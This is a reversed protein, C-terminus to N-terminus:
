LEVQYVNQVYDVQKLQEITEKGVEKDVGLFAIARGGVENRGVQMTAININANGLITGMKGIIGPQDIHEMVILHGEPIFDITYGNFNVIRAGYGNLLTGSLYKEEHNTKVKVTMLNTFGHTKSTRSEVVDIGRGKALIPANVDNVVGVSGLHQSLIGKLVTRTLIDIEKEAIDGSFSIEVKEIAGFTVNEVIIGLKEALQIYPRVHNLTELSLSPMNVANRFPKGTLKNYVEEAVDIAVNLQAEETSAGLHPTIVVHPHKILPSENPPEQEFVDLAAAAVIGENLARLLAEERIIGGRACNIIRVGKKMMAFEKDDILYKTEKTLPTHVTIFDAQKVVDEVTGLIVGMKEAREKTIYPDYAIVKMNFAKARKAVESGIRGMGIIGLTKRNLEVGVYKKRNWIGQKLDQHAQPIWRAMAILMAFSHEATSITNGDPANIVVIGRETAAQVDINDVGVGARGIVQLNTAADLIEKTVKTQSRVLLGDYEGIINRLEEPSLDTKIDLEIDEAERLKKLGIESIPDSVLIKKM